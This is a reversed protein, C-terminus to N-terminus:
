PRLCYRTVKRLNWGTFDMLKRYWNYRMKGQKIEGNFVIYKIGDETAMKEILNYMRIADEKCKCLVMDIHGANHFIVKNKLILVEKFNYKNESEKKVFENYIWMFNKRQHIPNYGYVWFTEEKEYPRRDIIEWNPSNSEYKVYRGYDDKVESVQNADDKYKIVLLEFDAPKIAKTNVYKLPFVVKGCQETIKDLKKYISKESAAWCLDEKQKGFSTLIIHYLMKKPKSM